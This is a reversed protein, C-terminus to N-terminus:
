ARYTSAPYAYVCPFYYDISYNLEVCGKFYFYMGEFIM